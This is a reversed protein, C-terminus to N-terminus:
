EHSTPIGEIYLLEANSPITANMVPAIFAPLDAGLDIDDALSLDPPGGQPFTTVYGLFIGVDEAKVLYTTEGGNADTLETGDPIRVNNALIAPIQDGAFSVKELEFWTDPLGHLSGDFVLSFSLWEEPPRENVVDDTRALSIPEFRIPESLLVFAGDGDILYTVGGWHEGDEQYEWSYLTSDALASDDGDVRLGWFDFTVVDGINIGNAADAESVVSYELLLYNASGPDTNLVYKSNADSDWPEILVTGNSTWRNTEENWTAEYFGPTDADADYVYNQCSFGGEGDDGCTEIFIERQDADGTYAFTALRNTLDVSTACGGEDRWAVLTKYWGEGVHDAHNTQRISDFVQEIIGFIDLVEIEVFKKVELNHYDSDEPLDAVARRFNARLAELANGLEGCAARGLRIEAGNESPSDASIETPLAV